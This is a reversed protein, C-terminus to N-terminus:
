KKILNSVLKNFHDSNANTTNLTPNDDVPLHKLTTFWYNEDIGFPAFAHMHYLFFIDALDYKKSDVFEKLQKNKLMEPKLKKLSTQGRDVYKKFELVCELKDVAKCFKAELTTGANFEDTIQMLEPKLALDGIVSEVGARAQAKLSAKDVGSLPTVDGIKLEELEHITIMELVKGMDLNLDMESNLGIALIMCGWTHEAISELREAEVDWQVAGQRLMEKLKTAKYYFKFSNDINKMKEGM